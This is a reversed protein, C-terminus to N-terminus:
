KTKFLSFVSIQKEPIKVMIPNPQPNIIDSVLKVIKNRDLKETSDLAIQIQLVKEKISKFNKVSKLNRNLFLNHKIVCKANSGYYEITEDITNYSTTVNDGQITICRGSKEDFIVKFLNGKDDVFLHKSTKNLNVVDTRIQEKTKM